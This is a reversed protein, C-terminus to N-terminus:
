DTWRGTPFANEQFRHFPKNEVATLILVILPTDRSGKVWVCVCVGVWMCMCVGVYVCGCVCVWMCVGVYVCLIKHSFDVLHLSAAIILSLLVCECVNMYVYM